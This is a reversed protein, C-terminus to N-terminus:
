KELDVLMQPVHHDCGSLVQHTSSLDNVGHVKHYGSIKTNKITLAIYHRCNMLPPHYSFDPDDQVGRSDAINM